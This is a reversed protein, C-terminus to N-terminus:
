SANSVRSKSPLKNFKSKWIRRFQSAEEFGCKSSIDDITLNPNNLLKRAKDIRIETIYEYISIGSSKKFVRTLNRVSMNAIEALDALRIKREIHNILYDQVKHIGIHIHNRYDLYISKQSDTGERRLYIVLERAVKLTFFPGIEDEIISLCLDIGTTVGASTLINGDKVYIQDDVVIANPFANKFKKIYKWHTTCKKHDLLGAEGLVFAGTCISALIIGIDNVSRIWNRFEYDRTLQEDNGSIILYDDKELKISSFHEISYIILGSSSIIKRKNSVFKLELKGGLAIAEEFVQLPGALNLLNVYESIFFVVKKM